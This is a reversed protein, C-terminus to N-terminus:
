GLDDRHADVELVHHRSFDQEFVAHLRHPQRLVREGAGQAHRRTPHIFIMWPLRTTVSSVENRSVRAAARDATQKTANKLAACDRQTLKLHKCELDTTAFEELRLTTV